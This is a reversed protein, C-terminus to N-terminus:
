EDCVGKSMHELLKAEEQRTLRLFDAPRGRPTLVQEIEIDGLYGVSPDPKHCLRSSARPFRRARNRLLHISDHLIFGDRTLMLLARM